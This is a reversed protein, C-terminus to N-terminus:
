SSHYQSSACIKDILPQCHLCASCCAEAAAADFWCIGALNLCGDEIQMAAAKFWKCERGVQFSGEPCKVCEGPYVPPQFWSGDDKYYSYGDHVSSYWLQVAQSGLEPDGQDQAAATTLAVEGPALASADSPSLMLAQQSNSDGGRVRNRSRARIARMSMGTRSSGGDILRISWTGNWVLELNSGPLLPVWGEPCHECSFHEVYHQKWAAARSQGSDGAALVGYGDACGTYTPM